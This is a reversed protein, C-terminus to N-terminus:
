KMDQMQNHSTSELVFCEFLIRKELDEGQKPTNVSAGDTM